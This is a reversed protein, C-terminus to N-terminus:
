WTLGQCATHATGLGVEGVDADNVGSTGPAYVITSVTRPRHAQDCLAGSTIVAAQGRGAGPEDVAHVRVTRGPRVPRGGGPTSLM